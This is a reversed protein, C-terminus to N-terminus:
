LFYNNSEDEIGQVDHETLQLQISHVALVQVHGQVTHLDVLLQSEYIDPKSYKMSDLKM